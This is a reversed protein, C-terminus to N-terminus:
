DAPFQQRLEAATPLRAEQRHQCASSSQADLTESKLPMNM